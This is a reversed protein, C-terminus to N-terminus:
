VVAYSHEPYLPLCFCKLSHIKPIGVDFANTHIYSAYDVFPM